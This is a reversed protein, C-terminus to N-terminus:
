EPLLVSDSLLFDLEENSWLQEDFPIQLLQIFGELIAKSVRTYNLAPDLASLNITKNQLLKKQIERQSEPINLYDPLCQYADSVPLSGHQLVAGATRRQASGILKKGDVMIEDRNPALFCPLKQERKLQNFLLDSDHTQSNIGLMKLANQLCGSIIAYTEKVTHGLSGHKQSFVCSYTCDQYHLVPRGGTPRRVWQAGDRQIRERDLVSNADQLMGITISPVEWTYTRLVMIDSDAYKGLLYKDAAMNFRASRPGDDIYRLSLSM